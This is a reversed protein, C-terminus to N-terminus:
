DVANRAYLNLKVGSDAVTIRVGGRRFRECADVDQALDKCYRAFDVFRDIGDCGRIITDQFLRGAPFLVNEGTVRMVDHNIM